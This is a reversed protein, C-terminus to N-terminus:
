SLDAAVAVDPFTPIELEIEAVGEMYLLDNLTRGRRQPRRYDEISLLVHAPRGRHTIFVRGKESAKKAKRTNRNSESSSVTTVTVM